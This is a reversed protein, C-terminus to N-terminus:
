VFVLLLFFLSRVGGAGVWCDQLCEVTKSLYVDSIFGSAADADACMLRAEQCTKIAAAVLEFATAVSGIDQWCTLSTSLGLGGSTFQYHGWGIGMNDEDLDPACPDASQVRELLAAVDKSTEGQKFSSQANM